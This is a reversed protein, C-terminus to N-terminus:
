NRLSHLEGQAQYAERRAAKLVTAPNPMDSANIRIKLLEIIENVAARVDLEIPEVLVIAGDRITHV